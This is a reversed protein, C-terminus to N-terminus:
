FLDDMREMGAEASFYHEDVLPSTESPSDLEDASTQQYGSGLSGQVFQGDLVQCARQPTAQSGNRSNRSPLRLPYVSPAGRPGPSSPVPPLSTHSRLMPHPVSPNNIMREPMPPLSYFVNRRARREGIPILPKKALPDVRHTKLISRPRKSTPKEQVDLAYIPIQTSGELTPLSSPPAM